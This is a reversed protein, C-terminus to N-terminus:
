GSNPRCRTTGRIVKGEKTTFSYMVLYDDSVSAARDTDHIQRKSVVRGQTVQGSHILLFVRVGGALLVLGFLLGIGGVLARAVPLQNSQAAM